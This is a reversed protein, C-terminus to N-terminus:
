LAHRIGQRAPETRVRRGPEVRGTAPGGGRGGPAVGALVEVRARARAHGAEGAPPRHARGRGRAGVTREASDRIASGRAAGGPRARDVDVNVSVTM